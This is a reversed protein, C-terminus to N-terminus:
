TSESKPRKVDINNETNNDTVSSNEFENATAFVRKFPKATGQSNDESLPQPAIFSGSSYLSSNKEESMVSPTVVTLVNSPFGTVASPPAQVIVTAQSAPQSESSQLKQGCLLIRPKTNAIMSQNISKDPFCFHICKLFHLKLFIGFLFM